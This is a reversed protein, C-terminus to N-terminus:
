LFLSPFQNIIHKMPIHYTQLPQIPILKFTLVCWSVYIFLYFAKITDLIEGISSMIELLNKWTNDVEEFIM